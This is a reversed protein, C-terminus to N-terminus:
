QTCIRLINHFTATKTTEAPQNLNAHRIPDIQNVRTKLAPATDPTQHLIQTQPDSARNGNSPSFTEVAKAEKLASRM